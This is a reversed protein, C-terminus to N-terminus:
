VTAPEKRSRSPDIIEPVHSERNRIPKELGDVRTMAPYEPAGFQAARAAYSDPILPPKKRYDPLGDAERFLPMVEEAMLQM